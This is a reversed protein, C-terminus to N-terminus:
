IKIIKRKISTNASVIYILYIGNTLSSLNISNNNM